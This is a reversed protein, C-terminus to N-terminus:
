TVGTGSIIWETATLKLLTCIGNAALTRTGVTGAGALRLTDTTIAISVSGAGNQNVVTIATGIPFAVSANAPITFVRATTDASPHLIHKGADTLAFTYAASQSNQPIARYGVKVGSAAVTTTDSITGSGNLNTADTASAASGTINVGATNTAPNYTGSVDDIYVAQNGSTQSGVFTLYYIGSSQTTVNVNSANTANTANTVATTGIANTIDTSSAGTLTNAGNGKAIGSITGIPPQYDTGAVAISHAGTGTTNKLIGTGLATTPEAYDTRVVANALAGGSNAKLIATGTPPALFFSKLNAWSLKKLVNSAASDILPLVDADVPTTKATANAVTDENWLEALVGKIVNLQVLAGSTFTRAATGDQARTIVWTLTSNDTVKVIEPINSADLITAYFYLGGATTVAPFGSSSTVALTTQGTTSVAATSTTSANNALQARAM